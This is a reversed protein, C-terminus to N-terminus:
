PDFGCTLVKERYRTKAPGTLGAYYELFAVSVGSCTDASAMNSQISTWWCPPRSNCLLIQDHPQFRLIAYMMLSSLPEHALLDRPWTKMFFDKFDTHQHTRPHRVPNPHHIFIKKAIMLTLLLKCFILASSLLRCNKFLHIRKCITRCAPYLLATCLYKPCYNQWISPSMQNRVLVDPIKRQIPLVRLNEYFLVVMSTQSLSIISIYVM